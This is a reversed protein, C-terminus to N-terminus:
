AEVFVLLQKFHSSPHHDSPSSILELILYFCYYLHSPPLYFFARTIVPPFPNRRSNSEDTSSSCLAPYAGLKGVWRQACLVPLFVPLALRRSSEASQLCVKTQTTVDLAGTERWDFVLLVIIETYQQSLLHVTNSSLMSRLGKLIVCEYQM